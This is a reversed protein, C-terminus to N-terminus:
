MTFPYVGRSSVSQNQYYSGSEPNSAKLAEFVVGGTRLEDPDNGLMM